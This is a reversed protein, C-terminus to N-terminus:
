KRDTKEGNKIDELLLIYIARLAVILDIDKKGDEARKLSDEIQDLMETKTM